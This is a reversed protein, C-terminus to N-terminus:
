WGEERLAEFQVKEMAIVEDINEPVQMYGEEYRKIMEEQRRKTLWYHIARDILASRTIGMKKRITEVLKFDERPLSIAIKIANSPM